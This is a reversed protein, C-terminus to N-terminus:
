QISTSKFLHCRGYIGDGSQIFLKEMYTNERSLMDVKHIINAELNHLRELEEETYEEKKTIHIAPLIISGSSLRKVGRYHSLRDFSSLISVYSSRRLSTALSRSSIVSRRSQMSSRRTSKDNVNLTNTMIDDSSDDFAPPVKAHLAEHKQIVDSSSHSSSNISLRPSRSRSPRQKRARKSSSIVASSKSQKAHPSRNLSTSRESLKSKKAHSRNLSKSRESSKLRSESEDDGLRSASKTRRIAQSQPAHLHKSDGKKSQHVNTIYNEEIVRHHHQSNINNSSVQKSNTTNRATISSHHKKDRLSLLNNHFKNDGEGLPDFFMDLVTCVWCM